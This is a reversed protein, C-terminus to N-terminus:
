RVAVFKITLFKPSKDSDFGFFNKQEVQLVPFVPNDYSDGLIQEQKAPDEFEIFIFDAGHSNLERIIQKSNCEQPIAVYAAFNFDFSDSQIELVCNVIPVYYLFVGVKLGAQAKDRRLFYNFTEKHLIGKGDFFSVDASEQQSGLGILVLLILGLRFM